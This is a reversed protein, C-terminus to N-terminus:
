SISPKIQINQYCLSDKAATDVQENQKIGAHNPIWMLCVSKGQQSLQKLKFLTSTFLRVNDPRDSRQLTHMALLLDTLIFVQPETHALAARFPLINRSPSHHQPQKTETYISTSWALAWTRLPVRWLDFSALVSSQGEKGERGIQEEGEKGTQKKRKGQEEM